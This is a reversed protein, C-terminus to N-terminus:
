SRIPPRYLSVALPNIYSTLATRSVFNSSNSLKSNSFNPTIANYSSCGNRCDCQQQCCNSPEATINQHMESDSAAATETTSDTDTAAMRAALHASHDPTTAAMTTAKNGTNQATKNGDKESMQACLQSNQAGSYAGAVAQTVLSFLVLLCVLSTLRHSTRYAPM